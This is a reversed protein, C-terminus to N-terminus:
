TYLGLSFLWGILVAAPGTIQRSFLVAPVGIETTEPEAEAMALAVPIFDAGVQGNIAFLAPLALAVSVNGAAIQTGILTGVVQAVVAGPGLFPSLLPFCAIAALVLLGVLSGALPVLLSALADGLGSATIIGILAAIFAMFPLITTITLDISDRGSQFLVGVVYGIGRGVREIFAGVSQM